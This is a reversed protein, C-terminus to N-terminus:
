ELKIFPAISKKVPVGSNTILEDGVADDAVALIRIYYTGAPLNRVDLTSSQPSDTCPDIDTKTDFLIWSQKNDNSYFM